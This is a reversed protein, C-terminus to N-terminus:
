VGWPGAPNLYPQPETQARCSEVTEQNPTLADPTIVPATSFWYSATTPRAAPTVWAPSDQGIVSFTLTQTQLGYVSDVTTLAIIDTHPGNTGQNFTAWTFTLNFPSPVSVSTADPSNTLSWSYSSVTGGFVQARLDADWGSFDHKTVGPTVVIANNADLVWIPAAQGDPPPPTKHNGGIAGGGVVLNSIGTGAAPIVNATLGAPAPLSPLFITGPSPVALAAVLPANFGTAGGSPPALGASNGALAVSSSSGLAQGGASDTLHRPAALSLDALDFLDPFRRRRRELLRRAAPHPNGGRREDM